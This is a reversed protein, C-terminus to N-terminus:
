ATRRPHHLDPPDLDLRPSMFLACVGAARTERWGSGRQTSASWSNWMRVGRVRRSRWNLAWPPYAGELNADRDQAVAVAPAAIATAAVLVMLRPARDADSRLLSIWELATAFIASLRM